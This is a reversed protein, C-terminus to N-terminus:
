VVFALGVSIVEIIDSAVQEYFRGCRTCTLKYGIYETCAECTKNDTDDLM